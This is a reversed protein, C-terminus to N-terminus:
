CSIEGSSKLISGKIRELLLFRGPSYDIALCLAPHTLQLLFGYILFLIEREWNSWYPQKLISVKRLKEM